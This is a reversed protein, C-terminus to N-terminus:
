KEYSVSPPILLLEKRLTEFHPKPLPKMLIDAIMMKSPFYIMKIIESKRLHKTNHFKFDIHKTRAMAQKIASLNDEYVVIPPQQPM